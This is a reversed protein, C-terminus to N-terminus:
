AHFTRAMKMCLAGRGHVDPRIVPWVAATRGARVREYRLSLQMMFASLSVVVVHLKAMMYTQIYIMVSWGKLLKQIRQNGLWTRSVYAQSLAATQRRHQRM